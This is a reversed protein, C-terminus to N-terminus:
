AGPPLDDSRELVSRLERERVDLEFEVPSVARRQRCRASHPVYPVSVDSVGHDPVSGIDLCGGALKWIEEPGPPAGHEDM